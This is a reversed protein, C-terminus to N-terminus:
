SQFFSKTSACHSVGGEDTVASLAPGMYGDTEGEPLPENYDKYSYDYEKMGLDGTVYEETFAEAEGGAKALDVEEAVLTEEVQPLAIVSHLHRFLSFSFFLSPLPLSLSSSSFSSLFSISPISSFYLSLLTLLLFLIVTFSLRLLLSIGPSFSVASLTTLRVKQSLCVSVFPCLAYHCRTSMLLVALEEPLKRVLAHFAYPKM